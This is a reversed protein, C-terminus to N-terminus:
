SQQWGIPVVSHHQDCGVSVLSFSTSISTMEAAREGVPFTSSELALVIPTSGEYVWEGIEHHAILFSLQSVLVVLLSATVASARVPRAWFCSPVSIRSLEGQRVSKRKVHYLFLCSHAERRMGMSANGFIDCLIDLDPNLVYLEYPIFFSALM